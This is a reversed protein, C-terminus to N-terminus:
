PTRRLAAVKVGRDTLPGGPIETADVYTGSVDLPRELIKARIALSGHMM